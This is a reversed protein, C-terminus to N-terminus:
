NPWAKKKSKFCFIYTKVRYYVYTLNILLFIYSEQLLDQWKSKEIPKIVLTKYKQM